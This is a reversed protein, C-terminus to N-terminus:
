FSVGIQAQFTRPSVFHTGGFTSLFNYLAVKNGLNLGSLRLTVRARETKFLNDSGISLDFLHRAAIRPPNLDDSATGDAPINIRLAGRNSLDCSTIPSTPTAFLDGCFLGIQAQQDATLTLATAFDPVAGSVLGSDYRWSFIVYPKFPRLSDFQTFQYQVQTTQQFAQDHDIRFVGTPLDSNFFLGGTEPPFFRSRTHGAVFFASLGKYETLNTRFSVGDIKSKDWAIPFAIPTNLIVNFDYANTTYKWFYDADLVVLKGFAQQLGVNFQHRRGPELLQATAGGFSGDALGNSGTVSSLILNENYPTEFTRIYSGRLVTNTPKILYSIGVRPQLLDDSTIGHYNDYRLGLNLSVDHLTILDQLYLATQKIDTHGNFLFSEGGRTLDFPLIGPLFDPNAFTTVGDAQSPDIFTPDGIPNGDIDVVPSNFGADTIGLQFAETLFTHQFQAGFKINNIGKVYSLDARIGTNTLRRQQSITQTEDSFPDASPFYKVQDLRYYPNITLVTSSSFIHSYGPAVNISRVLQHQDQGLADQTFTNPIEFNNRALFLNLHLTDKESLQYDFHNFISGSTGRDHLVTFEPTDLFRGSREFNFATFNGVKTNGFALAAAQSTSGFSGYQTSFSGTPHEVGLGSRSTANIVLSTKDGFEASQAGTIIEMSQIANVPLQTSFAKSQQDTIPQGDFSISAQAHDGLPHLFGNSDAAVGPSSLMIVDSLGSGYSSSPFKSLLSQDVDTHTSPVNELVESNSTVIVSESVANGITLPINLNIPVLSRVSVNQNVSSFGSASVKLSYVNPPVNVFKFLGTSDTTTTREYKTVANTISVTAGPIVAGNPDVVSGTVTGASGLTQAHLSTSLMTILLSLGISVSIKKLSM